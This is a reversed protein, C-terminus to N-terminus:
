WIEKTENDNEQKKEKIKDSVSIKDSETKQKNRLILVVNSDKDFSADDLIQLTASSMKSTVNIIKATGILEEIQGLSEGTYTDKLQEGLKFVQYEDGVNLQNGGQGIYLTNDLIKEVRLPYIAFLIDEGIKSSADLIMQTDANRNTTGSDSLYLNSYKIQRTAVDIVRYSIEVIGNTSVFTKNLSPFNKKTSKTNFDEIVGVLILDVGLDNGLKSLESLPVDGYQIFDRESYIEEVFDRDAVFFKRSQTLQTVLSQNLLGLVRRKDVQKNQVILERTDTIRFPMVAIRKRKTQPSLAYKAITVSVEIEWGGIDSPGSNTIQYSDIIGETHKSLDQSFKKSYYYDQDEGQTRSQSFTELSMNGEVVAGNIQSLAEILANNIAIQETEGLASVSLTIFKTQGHVTPIFTSLTILFLIGLRKFFLLRIL